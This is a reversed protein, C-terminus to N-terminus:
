PRRLKDIELQMKDLSDQEIKLGQQEIALLQEQDSELKASLAQWRSLDAENKFVLAGSSLTPRSTGAFDNLEGMAMLVQQNAARARDLFEIVHGFRNGAAGSPQPDLQAVKRTYEIKSRKVATFFEDVSVKMRALKARNAAVGTRTAFSEPLMFGTGMIKETELTYATSLAKIEAIHATVLKGARSQPTAGPQADAASGQAPSAAGSPKEAALDRMQAQIQSLENVAQQREHQERNRRQEGLHEDVFVKGVSVAILVGLAALVVPTKSAHQAPPASEPRALQRKQRARQWLLLAVMVVGFAAFGYAWYVVNGPTAYLPMLISWFVTIGALVLIGVAWPSAPKPKRAAAPRRAGPANRAVAASVGPAREPQKVSQAAPKPLPATGTNSGADPAHQQLQDLKFVKGLPAFNKRAPVYILTQGDVDGRQFAAALASRDALQARQGHKDIYYIAV